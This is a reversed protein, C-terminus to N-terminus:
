KFRAVNQPHLCKQAPVLCIALALGHRKIHTAMRHRACPNHLRETRRSDRSQQFTPQLRATGVLNAHMHSMTPMRQDAVRYVTTPTLQRRFCNALGTYFGNCPEAPVRKMRRRQAENMRHSAILDFKLGRHGIVHASKQASKTSGDSVLSGMHTIACFPGKEQRIKRNM